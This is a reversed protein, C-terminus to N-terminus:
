RTISSTSPAPPVAAYREFDADFDAGQLSRVLAKTMPSQPSRDSIVLGLAQRHYPDVLEISVLDAKDGLIYFFTHPVISCWLGNRIHACVALFSNSVVSPRMTLRASAAIGNLIRRNQMDESLLCLSQSVAEAWTLTRRDALPHDARCVFVYREHYLPLRQVNELPENELYTLGGDIEFTDLGHQIARSTMSRIDITGDPHEMHFRESLFSVSAMAAPIVGLRLTGSLGKKSGTIDKQLSDYDFLIQRGWELAREGDPTLGIYRNGRAILTVRLDDELKRIAASLTPQTIHCLEAARAFHKEEALTVFFSLHRILM